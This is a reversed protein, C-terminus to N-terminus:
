RKFGGLIRQAIQLRSNNIQGSQLLYNIIQNPNTMNGPINYGAKKLTSCPDHKLQEVAQAPNSPQMRQQGGLSEFLGM